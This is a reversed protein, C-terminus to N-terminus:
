RFLGLVRAAIGITAPAPAKRDEPELRAAAFAPTSRNFVRAAIAGLPQESDVTLWSECEGLARESPLVDGFPVAFYPADVNLERQLWARGDRVERASEEDSLHAHHAHSWGHNQLEAGADRLSALDMRSLTRLHKPLRLNGVGWQSALRTVLALRATEDKLAFLRDKIRRRLTNREGVTVVPCTQGDLQVVNGRLRDLLLSLLALPYPAGSEVLCPNVFLTVHHGYRLALRAARASGLTADDITLASGDGALARALPVCPPASRLFQVFVDESTLARDTLRRRAVRTAVGHMALINGM